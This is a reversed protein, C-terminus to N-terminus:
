DSNNRLERADEVMALKLAAVVVNRDVPEDGRRWRNWLRPSIYGDGMMRRIRDPWDRGHMKTKRKVILRCAEVVDAARKPPECAWDVGPPEPLKRLRALKLDEARWRLARPKEALELTTIM